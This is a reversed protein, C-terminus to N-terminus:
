KQFTDYAKFQATFPNLVLGVMRAKGDITDKKDIFNITVEQTLGEPIIYFFAQTKKPGTGRMEDYGEIIFQKIELHTPYNFASRPGRVRETKAFGEEDREGVDRQVSVQHKTFDFEVTHLKHTILAQQWAFQTLANLRAIFQEREYRPKRQGLNPVLTMLSAIIAIVILIELLTFGSKKSNLV